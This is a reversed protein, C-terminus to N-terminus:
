CKACRIVISKHHTIDAVSNPFIAKRLHFGFGRWGCGLKGEPVFISGRHRCNILEIILLFTGHANSGM